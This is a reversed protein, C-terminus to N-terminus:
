RLFWVQQLCKESSMCPWIVLIKWGALPIMIGQKYLEHCFCVKYLKEPLGPGLTKHVTYTADVINGAVREKKKSLPIFGM